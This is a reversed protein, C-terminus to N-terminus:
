LSRLPCTSDTSRACPLADSGAAGGVVGYAWNGGVLGLARCRHLSAHGGIGCVVGREGLALPRAVATGFICMRVGHGRFLADRQRGLRITGCSPARPLWALGKQTNM